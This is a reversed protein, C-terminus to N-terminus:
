MSVYSSVPPARRSGSKASNRFCRRKAGGGGCVGFQTTESSSPASSDSPSSDTSARHRLLTRPHRIQPPESLQMKSKKLCEQHSCRLPLRNAPVTKCRNVLCDKTKTGFPNLDTMVRSLMLSYCPTKQKPGSCCSAAVGSGFPKVVFELLFNQPLQGFLGKNKVWLPKMIRSLLHTVLHRTSPGSCCSAAFRRVWPLYVRLGGHFFLAHRPAHWRSTCKRRVQTRATHAALHKMQNTKKPENSHNQSTKHMHGPSTCPVFYPAQSCTYPASTKRRDNCPGTVLSDDKTPSSAYCTNM